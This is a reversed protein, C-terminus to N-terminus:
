HERNYKTHSLSNKFKYRPVTEYNDNSRKWHIHFYAGGAEKNKKEKPSPTPIASGTYRRAVLQVALTLIGAPYIKRREVTDLGTRPGLLGGICHILPSKGHPLAVPTHLQGSMEM